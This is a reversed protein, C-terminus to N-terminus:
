VEYWGEKLVLAMLIIILSTTPNFFVYGTLTSLCFSFGLMLFILIYKYDNEKIKKILNLLGIILFAIIPGLFLIFGLIGFNYLLAFTEMELVYEGYHNLYGNGFLYTLLSNSHAYMYSHYILQQIRRDTAKIEYKNASEYTKLYSQQRLSNMDTLTDDKIKSIFTITDGTVHAVDGTIPDITSNSLDDLNKQRTLFYNGGVLSLFIIVVLSLSVLIKNKKLFAKYVFGFKIFLYLCTLLIIGYYGTRTGLIFMMYIATLIILPLRKKFNEKSILLLNYMYLFLLSASLSNGSLFWSKYGVGDLYTSSSTNTILSLYIIGLYTILLVTMIKDISELKKNKYFWYLSGLLFLMYSYNFLYQLESQWTGYSYIDYGNKYSLLHFISYLGIVLILGLIYKITKKDHFMIYFLLIGLFLVRILATPSIIFKNFLDSGLFSIADLIPFFLLMITIFKDIKIKM